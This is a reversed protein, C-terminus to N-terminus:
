LNAVHSQAWYAARWTSVGVGKLYLVDEGMREVAEPECDVRCPGTCPPWRCGVSCPCRDQTTMGVRAGASIRADAVVAAAVAATGLAAGEFPLCPDLSPEAFMSSTLCKWATKV